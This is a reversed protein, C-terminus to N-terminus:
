KAAQQNDPKPPDFTRIVQGNAGNWVRLVGDQGAAIVVQENASAAAAFMFDTAGAFNRYNNGNDATHFRVTKDGGCSVINASRGM